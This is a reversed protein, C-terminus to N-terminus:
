ITNKSSWFRESRIRKMTESIKRKTDESMITGKKAVSIKHKTEESLPPHKQGKRVKGMNHHITHSSRKMLELNEIRNDLIDGNIHHVVEDDSLQRGMKCEM